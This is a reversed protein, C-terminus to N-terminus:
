ALRGLLDRAAELTPDEALSKDLMLKARRADGQAAAINGLHYYAIARDQPSIGGADRMLTVARFARQAIDSEDLDIALQGLELAIGGNQPQNDFAKVLVELATSLNGDRSEVRYAAYYAQGLEKSRRGKHSAILQALLERADTPRGSAGFAEALLLTTDLSDPRVTRAEELVALAREAMQPGMSAEGTGYLLLRAAELLLELRVDDSAAARADALVLESLEAVAGTEEYVTRLAARLGVDSPSIENARELSSRALDPAGARRSAEFLHTAVDALEGPEVRGALQEWAQAAAMWNEAREEIRALSRWAATVSPDKRVIETAVVRASEVDGGAAAVEALRLRIELEDRRSAGPDRGVRVLAAELHARLESAYQGGSKDFALELDDLAADSEGIAERLVARSFYLWPADEPETPVALARDVAEIARGHQGTTSCQDMFSFLIDRDEPAVALAQSFLDTAERADGEARVIEAAALLLAKKAAPDDLVTAEIASLRALGLKDEREEYVKSLKAKLELSRPNAKFGALLARESAEIDGTSEKLDAVKLALSVAQDGTEVELLRDLMDGLALSDDRKMMLRVVARLAELNKEDWDLAGHYGDLATEEDGLRERLAAIRLSLDIVRARDEKDKAHDLQRDLLEVLKDDAGTAEYLKALLVAAETNSPDELTAEGLVEAAREPEIKELMTALTVRLAARESPDDVLPITEDMLEALKGTDGQARYVETLPAWADRDAPERKRLEEFLAAAWPLDALVRRALDGVRLLLAREEDPDSVRAAREWLTAAERADGAAFRLEALAALAWVGGAEDGAKSEPVIRRLLRESLAADELALGTEYADRLHVGPNADELDALLELADVIARTRNRERAFDELLRVLRTSKPQREIAQRIERELRDADEDERAARELLEVADTENGAGLHVGVLRYLPPAVVGFGAGEATALDVLMTLVEAHRSAPSRGTAMLRETIPDLAVLIQARRISHTIGADDLALLTAQYADAAAVDDSLETSALKAAREYLDARLAPDSAAAAAALDAALLRASAGQSKALAAVRGYLKANAPDRGLSALAMAVGDDARGLKEIWVTALELEIATRKQPALDTAELRQELARAVLDVFGRRGLAAVLADWEEVDDRAAEFASEIFEAKRDAEGQKDSVYALEVLVQAKYTPPGVVKDKDRQSRVVMLLGRYTRQARLLQGEELAIQALLMLVGAHAPDIKTATDLEKLAGARDGLALALKGLEFHVLAREKPKRTGFEALVKELTAKAEERRGSKALADALQALSGLDDPRVEVARELIPVAGEPKELENLWLSAAARLLELKKAPDEEQSAERERLAALPEWLATDRYLDALVGRVRADARGEEVARELGERARETYGARAYATAQRLALDADAEGRAAALRELVTAEEQHKGARELLSAFRDLNADSADVEVVWQFDRAARPLDNLSVEAISAAKAYLSAALAGDDAMKLAGQAELLTAHAPHAASEELVRALRAFSDDHGPLEEINERLAAVAEDRRDLELLLEALVLRLRAREGVSDSVEAMRAYTRALEARNGLTEYLGLLRQAVEDNARDAEYVLELIEAAETPEALEAARRWLSAVTPQGVPLRAAALLRGKVEASRGLEDLMTTSLDLSWLTAERAVEDTPADHLRRSAAEFLRDSVDLALARDGVERAAITAGNQLAEIDGGRVESLEVLADVLPRGRTGDRAVVLKSLVEEDRPARRHAATLLAEALGNSADLASSGTAEMAWDAAGVLLDRAVRADIDDRVALAPLLKPAVARWERTTRARALLAEAVGAHAPLLTFAQLTRELALVGENREDETKAARVFLECREEDADAAAVLAPVLALWRETAQTREFARALTRVGRAFQPREDAAAPDLGGVLAELGSQAAHHEPSLELAAEYAALGAVRDERARQTDGLRALVDCKREIDKARAAESALLTALEDLREDQVLTDALEDAVEDTAGFLDIVRRYATVASSPDSLVRAFLRAVELRDTQAEEPDATAEARAELAAVLAHSDGTFRLNNVLATLVPLDGPAEKLASQLSRVARVRDGLVEEAISAAEFLSARRAKPKDELTALRELVQCREAQRGAAKLTQDLKRAAARAAAPDQDSRSLIALDIGIARSEDALTGRALESARRLLTLARDGDQVSEGIEILAEVLSTTRAKDDGAAKDALALAAKDEAASSALALLALSAQLAGAPDGVDDSLVARLRTIEARRHDASLEGELVIEIMRASSRADASKQFHPALALAIETRVAARGPASAKSWRRWPPLAADDTPETSGLWTEAMGVAQADGEALLPRIAELAPAISALGDHWLGAIRLRTERAEDADLRPLRADLLDILQRHQSHREYLRELQAELKVDNKRILRLQELYGMAKEPSSALDRAVEAADELVMARELEDPQSAIVHDYLEFLETWQEGSNYVLKLREVAWAATPVADVVLRLMQTLAAADDFWEEQFSVGREGIRLTIEETLRKADSLVIRYADGVIRPQESERALAEARDWFEEVEPAERAARAAVELAKAPDEEVASLWAEFLRPRAEGLSSAAASDFIAQYVRARDALSETAEAIRELLEASKAASEDVALATLSLSLLRPEGPTLDLVPEVVELAKSPQGLKGLLLEALELRVRARGEDDIEGELRATLCEVAAAHDGEELAIELRLALADAQHPDLELVRALAAKARESGGLQREFRALSVLLAVKDDGEARSVRFEFLARRQPELAPEGSRTELFADLVQAAEDADPGTGTDLLQKLANAAEVSRGARALAEARVRALDLGVGGFRSEVEDALREIAAVKGENALDVVSEVLGVAEARDAAGTLLRGTVELLAEGDGKALHIEALRELAQRANPDYTLSKELDVIAREVDDREAAREAAQYYRASAGARDNAREGLLQALHELAAPEADTGEALVARREAISCLLPVDALSTAIKEAPDLAPGDLILDAVSLAERYHAAAAADDGKTTAVAALRLDLEAADLSGSALEARDKVLEEHLEATRGATELAHLLADRLPRADALEALAARYTEIAAGPNKLDDLEVRGISLWLTQRRQASGPRELSARYLAIREDPSGKEALLLDIRELVEENDPELELVRRLADIAKTPDGSAAYAEGTRQALRAIAPHDITKKERLASALTEAVAAKSPGKEALGGIRDLWDPVGDVDHAVAERLGRGALFLARIRDKGMSEILTHAEALAALRETPEAHLEARIELARVLAPEDGESRYVPALVSAAGLRLDPEGRELMDVLAARSRPEDPVSELVESFAGLADAERGLARLTLGLRALLDAREEEPALELEALLVEALDAHRETRELEPLLMAHLDRSPGHENVVRLLIRAANEADGTKESLLGASRLLMQRRDEDVPMASARIELVEALTAFDGRAELLRELEEPEATPDLELVRKRAQIALSLDKLEGEYLGSLRRLVGLREDPDESLRAVAELIPALAKVEGTGELIEALSRAADLAVVDDAQELVSQLIVRARKTDGLEALFRGAELNIRARVAADKVAGAARSLVKSADAHKGLSRALEVYVVRTEDDSPDATLAAELNTFASPDDGLDRLILGLRKQAEAKKPGRLQEIQIGLMQAVSSRDGAAEYVKELAAAARAGVARHTLLRTAVRRAYENSPDAALVEEVHPIAREIEPVRDDYLEVLKSRIALRREDSPGPELSLTQELLKALDAFKGAAALRAELATLAAEDGPDLRLIQQAVKTARDSDDEPLLELAARLHELAVDKDTKPGVVALHLNALKDRDGKDELIRRMQEFAEPQGPVLTLARELAAEAGDLDGMASTFFRAAYLYIQAQQPAPMIKVRRDQALREYAFALEATRDDRMAARHLKEWLEPTAQGRAQAVVLLDLVAQEHELKDELYAPLNELRLPPGKTGTEM